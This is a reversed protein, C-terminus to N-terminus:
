EERVVGYGRSLIRDIEAGEMEEGVVLSGRNAGGASGQVVAAGERGRLLVRVAEERREERRRRMEGVVKEVRSEEKKEENDEGWGAGLEESCAEEFRRKCARDKELVRFVDTDDPLWAHLM